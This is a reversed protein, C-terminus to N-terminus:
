AGWKHPIEFFEFKPGLAVTKLRAIVEPWEWFFVKKTALRNITAVARLFADDNHMLYVMVGRTYAAEFEASCLLHLAADQSHPLPAAIDFLFAGLGKCRAIEVYDYSVDIGNVFFEPKPLYEMMRGWGCGVDLVKHIKHKRLIARLEFESPYCTLPLTGEAHQREFTRERYLRGADTTWTKLYDHHHSFRRFYPIKKLLSKLHNM